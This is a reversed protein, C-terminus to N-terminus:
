AFLCPMVKCRAPNLRHIAISVTHGALFETGWLSFVRLRYFIRGVTVNEVKGALGAISQRSPQHRTETRTGTARQDQRVGAALVVPRLRVGWRRWAAPCNRRAM